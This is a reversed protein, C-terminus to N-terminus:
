CYHVFNYPKTKTRLYEHTYEEKKDVYSHYPITQISGTTTTKLPSENRLKNQENEYDRQNILCQCQVCSISFYKLNNRVHMNHSHKAETNHSIQFYTLCTSQKSVLFGSVKWLLIQTVDLVHLVFM